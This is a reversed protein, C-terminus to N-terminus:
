DKPEIKVKIGADKLRDIAERCEGCTIGPFAKEFLCILMYVDMDDMLDGKEKQSIADNKYKCGNCSPESCMDFNERHNCWWECEEYHKCDRCCGDM